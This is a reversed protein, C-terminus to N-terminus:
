LSENKRVMRYHIQNLSNIRRNIGQKRSTLSDIYEKILAPNNTYAFGKSSSIIPEKDLEIIQTILHRVQVQTSKKPLSFIEALRTAKFFVNKNTRLLDLILRRTQYDKQDRDLIEEPVSSYINNEL